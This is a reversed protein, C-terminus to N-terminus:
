ANRMAASLVRATVDVVPIVDKYDMRTPGIVGLVGALQGNVEYSSTVLSMDGLPRYGSEQGIYLQVGSSQLCRDLLHLVRGKRSIADFLARAIDTDATFDLLRREGSVVLEQAESNPQDAPLAGEAMTLASHLVEDMRERDAHMSAMVAERMEILPRGGFEQNLLNAAQALEQDSFSKDLHIVRNQVDRDNLVLIVLVREDDLRLFELQRLHSQNRRPTTILCTMQTFQSLLESATNILETPSLNPDLEAEVERVRDNNWPEVSLLTDVFFRLGQQTPIKGASTHPSRVLGMSELDSMVNRVTASSVEVGPLTALAKSAVPTGEAIYHEVLLKLLQKARPDPDVAAPSTGSLEPDAM